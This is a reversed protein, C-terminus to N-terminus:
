NLARKVDPAKKLRKVLDLVVYSRRSVIPYVTVDEEPGGPAQAARDAVELDVRSSVDLM